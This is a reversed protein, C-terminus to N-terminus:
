DHTDSRNMSSSRARRADVAPAEDPRGPLVAAAPTDWSAWVEDGPRLMPLQQDPGIHALVENGDAAEGALRVM